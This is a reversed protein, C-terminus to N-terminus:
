EWLEFERVLRVGFRRLVESEVRAVLALVDACSAQGVNVFFNAHKASVEVDGVRLGKLGAQEILRGAFDGPPKLFVSGCSPLETPQNQKRSETFSEGRARIESPVGPELHLRTSLVVGARGRFLSGRYRFGCEDRALHRLTGDAELYDVDEVFNGIEFDHWGANMVVAGGITGPIGAGFEIGALGAAAAQNAVLPFMAGAGADLHQGDIRVEDLVRRMRLVLGKVGADHVLLNSGNGLVRWPVGHRAAWGVALLLDDRDAPVALLEAPGGIRWTTYPGLPCDRHLEGRFGEQKLKAKM